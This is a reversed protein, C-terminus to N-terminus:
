LWGVNFVRHPSYRGGLIRLLVFVPPSITCLTGHIQRPCVIYSVDFSTKAIGGPTVVELKGHRVAVEARAVSGPPPLALSIPLGCLLRPDTWFEDGQQPSGILWRHLPLRLDTDTVATVGCPNNPTGNAILLLRDKAM